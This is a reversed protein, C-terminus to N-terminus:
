ANTSLQKIEQLTTDDEDVKIYQLRGHNETRYYVYLAKELSKQDVISKLMELYVMKLCLLIYEKGQYTVRDYIIFDIDEDGVTLTVFELRNVHIDAM